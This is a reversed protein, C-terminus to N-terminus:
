HRMTYMKSHFQHFKAKEETALSNKHHQSPQDFSPQPSLEDVPYDGFNWWCIPDEVPKTFDNARSSVCQCPTIYQDQFDKTAVEDPAM